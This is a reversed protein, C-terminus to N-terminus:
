KIPMAEEAPPVEGGGNVPLGTVQFNGKVIPVIEKEHPIGVGSPRQFADQIDSNGDGNDVILFSVETGPSVEEFDGTGKTVIGTLIARGSKIIAIDIIEIKLRSRTGGDVLTATGDTGNGDSHAAITLAYGDAREGHGVVQADPKIVTAVSVTYLLGIMLMSVYGIKM